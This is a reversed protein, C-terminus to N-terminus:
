VYIMEGKILPKNGLRKKQAKLQGLRNIKKNHITKFDNSFICMIQHMDINMVCNEYIYM